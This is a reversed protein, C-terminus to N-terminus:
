GKDAPIKATNNEHLMIRYQDGRDSRSPWCGGFVVPGGERTLCLGGYAAEDRLPTAALHAV